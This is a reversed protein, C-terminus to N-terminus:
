SLLNREYKYRYKELFSKVASCIIIRAEKASDYYDPINNDYKWLVFRHLEKAMEDAVDDLSLTASLFYPKNFEGRYKKIWFSVGLIRYCREKM